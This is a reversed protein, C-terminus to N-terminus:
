NCYLLYWQWLFSFIYTSEFHMLILASMESDLCMDHHSSLWRKLLQKAREVVRGLTMLTQSQATLWTPRDKDCYARFAASHFMALCIYNTITQVPLINRQVIKSVNGFVDKSFNYRKIKRLQRQLALRKLAFLPLCHLSACHRSPWM